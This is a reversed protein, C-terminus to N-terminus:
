RRPPSCSLVERYTELHREYILSISLRRRLEALARSVESRPRALLSRIAAALAEPTHPSFTPIAGPVLANYERILPIDSALIPCGAAILSSLSGSAAKDPAFPCVALDAAGLRQQYEVEPLYGTLQLRHLVGRGQALRTLRSVAAERDTGLTAGGVFAVTIEPLLAMAEIMLDHGKADFIFGAVIVTKIDRPVGAPGPHGPAAEVFHPILVAKRGLGMSELLRKETGTLVFTRVGVRTVWRVVLWPRFGDLRWVSSYPPPLPGGSRYLRRLFRVPPRLVGRLAQGVVRGVIRTPTEGELARLATIDHLTFVIPARCARRFRRLNRLARSPEGWTSDTWVSVQLHVLDMESLRQGAARVIERDRSRDPGLAINEEAISVDARRRGEEALLRGYRCIGHEAPGVQLYGIRLPKEAISPTM